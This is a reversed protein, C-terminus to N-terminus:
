NSPKARAPRDGAPERLVTSWVDVDLHTRGFLISRGDGPTSPWTITDRELNLLEAAAGTATDFLLLRGGASGVLHSGDPLWAVGEGLDDTGLARATTVTRYQMSEIDVVLIADVRGNEDVRAGAISRGDPSWRHPEFGGRAQFERVARRLGDPAVDIIRWREQPSTCAVQRGDPSWVPYAATDSPISLRTLRSGDAAITWVSLSGDGLDGYFAIRSGDPSWRPARHHGTDLTLRRRESGDARSVYLAETGSEIMVLSTGDRTVDAAEFRRTESTVDSPDSTVKLTAPDFGVRQLDTEEKRSSWTIVEGPGVSVHVVKAAPLTVPEAPGDVRGTAEDIRIRYLNWLSSGGRNSLFFLYRGDASWVPNWDMAADHTVAVIAGSAVDITWIDRQQGTPQLGWYAIRGGGPSWAPQMADVAPLRREEGTRLDVVWLQSDVTRSNPAAVFSETAYAISRGDPSWTPNFGRSAVRRTSRDALDMVFVGGGDRASRFAISQADPSFAPQTDEAGSDPTLNTPHESGIAEIFVDAASGNGAAFLLWRGDASISPFLDASASSTLRVAAGVLPGAVPSRRLAVWWIALAVITGGAAIALHRASVTRASGFAGGSRSKRNRWADLESRYAYISGLKDHQLRHVPLGGNREWRQVTRVDRGLYSAIEKWSELRDTALTASAGDVDETSAMATL